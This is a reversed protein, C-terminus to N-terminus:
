MVRLALVCATWVNARKCDTGPPPWIKANTMQYSIWSMWRKGRPCSKTDYQRNTFHAFSDFAPHLFGFFGAVLAVSCALMAIFALSVAM